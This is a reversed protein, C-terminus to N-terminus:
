KTTKPSFQQLKASPILTIPTLHHTNPTLPQTIPTLHQTITSASELWLGRPSLLHFIFLSFNSFELRAKRTIAMSSFALRYKENKMTWKENLCSGQLDTGFGNCIGNLDRGKFPLRHRIAIPIQVCIHPFYIFFSFHFHNDAIVHCAPQFGLLV